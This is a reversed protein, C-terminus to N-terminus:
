ECLLMCMCLFSYLSVSFPHSIRLFQSSSFVDDFACMRSHALAGACMVYRLTAFCLSLVSYTLTLTFSYHLLASHQQSFAHAFFIFLIWVLIIRITQVLSHTSHAVAATAAAAAVDAVPLVLLLSHLAWSFQSNNNTWTHTKNATFPLLVFLLSTRLLFSFFLFFTTNVTFGDFSWAACDMCVCITINSYSVRKNYVHIQVCSIM